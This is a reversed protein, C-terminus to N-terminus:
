EGEEKAQVGPPRPWQDPDDFDISRYMEVLRVLNAKKEETMWRGSSLELDLRAAGLKEGDVTYIIWAFLRLERENVPGRLRDELILKAAPSGIRALADAAPYWGLPSRWNSLMLESFEIEKLLVRVAVPDRSLGLLRIGQFKRFKSPLDTADSLALSESSAVLVRHLDRLGEVDLREPGGGQAADVLEEAAAIGRRLREAESTQVRRDAARAVSSTLLLAFLLGAALCRTSM